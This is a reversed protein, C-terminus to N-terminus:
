KILSEMLLCCMDEEFLLMTLLFTRTASLNVITSLCPIMCLIYGIFLCFREYLIVVRCVLFPHSEDFCIMNDVEKGTCASQAKSEPLGTANRDYGCGFESGMCSLCILSVELDFM